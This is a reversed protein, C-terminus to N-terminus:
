ILSKKCTSIYKYENIYFRKYSSTFHRLISKQNHATKKLTTLININVTYLFAQLPKSPVNFFFIFYTFIVLM